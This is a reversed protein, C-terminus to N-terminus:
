ILGRINTKIINDLENKFNNIDENSYNIENERIPIYKQLNYEKVGGLKLLIAIQKLDKLNVYDPYLTTRFDYKVNKSLILSISKEINMIENINKSIKKSKYKEYTTKIDMGVFRIDDIINKLIDFNMGNTHIGVKFGKDNLYTVYDKIKPDFLCEGGSIIIHDIMQKRSILKPIINNKFDLDKMSLLPLNQCFRCRLNCTGVFLVTSVENPYDLM